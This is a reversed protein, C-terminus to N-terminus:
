RFLPLVGIERLRMRQVVEGTIRKLTVIAAVKAQATIRGICLIKNGSGFHLRCPFQAAKLNKSDEIAEM